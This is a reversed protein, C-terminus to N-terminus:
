GSKKKRVEARLEPPTLDPHEALIPDVIELFVEAMVKGVAQKYRKIEEPSGSAMVSYISDNLSATVSLATKLVSNATVRDKIM